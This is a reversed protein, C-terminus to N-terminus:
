AVEAAPLTRTSSHSAPPSGSGRSRARASRRAPRPRSRPPRATPPRPRRSRQAAHAREGGSRARRHPGRRSASGTLGHAFRDAGGLDHERAVVEVVREREERARQAETRSAIKGASSGRTAASEPWPRRTRSSRLASSAGPTSRRWQRSSGSPGDWTVAGFPVRMSSTSASAPRVTGLRRPRRESRGELHRARGVVGGPRAPAGPHAVAVQNRAALAAAEDRRVDQDGVAPGHGVVHVPVAHAELPDVAAAAPHADHVLALAFRELEGGAVAHQLRRADAVAHELRARAELDDLERTGGLVRREDIVLELEGRRRGIRLPVEGSLAEQTVHRAVRAPRRPPERAEVRTVGADCARRAAEGRHADRARVPAHRTVRPAM